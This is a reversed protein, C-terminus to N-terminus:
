LAQVEENLAEELVKQNAIKTTHLSLKKARQETWKGLDQKCKCVITSTAEVIRRIAADKVESCRSRKQGDVIMNAYLENSQNDMTLVTADLMKKADLFKQQVLRGLEAIQKQVLQQKPVNTSNFLDKQAQENIVKCLKSAGKHKKM